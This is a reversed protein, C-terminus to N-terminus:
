SGLPEEAFVSDLDESYAEITESRVGVGFQLALDTLRDADVLDVPPKGFEEAVRVAGENFRCTAVVAGANCEYSALADRLLRVTNPGIERQAGRCKAQIGLRQNGIGAVLEAVLDVGEDDPGGTVTVDYGMETFLRELFTEFETGELQRLKRLLQRKAHDRSELLAARAEEIPGREWEALTIDGGPLILLRPPLGRSRRGKMDLNISAHLTIAPTESKTNVLHRHLILEALEVYHVPTGTDRLVQEAADLWRM